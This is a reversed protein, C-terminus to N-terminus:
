KAPELNNRRVSNRVPQFLPLDPTRPGTTVYPGYMPQRPSNHYYHLFLRGPFLGVGRYDWGFVGDGLARSPGDGHILKGGGVYGLAYRRTVGPSAIKSIEKPYGAREMTHDSKSQVFIRDFFKPYPPESRGQIPAMLLFTFMAAFAVFRSKFLFM